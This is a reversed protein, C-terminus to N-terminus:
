EQNDDKVVEKEKLNKRKKRKGFYKDVQEMQERLMEIIESSVRTGVIPEKGQAGAKDDRTQGTETM